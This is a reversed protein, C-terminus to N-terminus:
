PAQIEVSAGHIQYGIVADTGGGSGEGNIRLVWNSLTSLDLNGTASIERRSEYAAVDPASNDTFNINNTVPFLSNQNIAFISFSPFAAPLASHGSAGEVILSLRTLRGRAPMGYVPLFLNGGLTNQEWYRTSPWSPPTFNPADQLPLAAIIPIPITKTSAGPTVSTLLNTREALADLAKKVTDSLPALWSTPTYDVNSADPFTYFIKQGSTDFASPTGGNGEVTGLFFGGEESQVGDNTTVVPGLLVVRYDSATTSPTAQGLAGATTITNNGGSYQVELEEIAIQETLAAEGPTLKYVVVNRGANSVGAQTVSNVNFTLTGDGNDTVSSPAAARGIEEKFAVYQPLATRPNIRLKSPVDARFFAVYYTTGNANEFPIDREIQTVDFLDGIGNTALSDGNIRFTDATPGTFTLSAGFVGPVDWRAQVAERYQADFYGFLRTGVDELSFLMKNKPTLYERGTTM